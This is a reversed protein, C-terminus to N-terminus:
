KKIFPKDYKKALKIMLIGGINKEKVEKKVEKITFNNNKNEKNSNNQSSKDSKNKLM